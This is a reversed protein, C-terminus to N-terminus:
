VGAVLPRRGRLEFSRGVSERESERRWYAPNKVKVWGRYGPRYTAPRRKAVVGELGHESVAEFLAHGDDFVESLRVCWRELDLEELLARRTAWSNCMVDHGDVRLVDFAVFTVPIAHNGHLARECLLPWHPAGQDNLTVLEGDLM